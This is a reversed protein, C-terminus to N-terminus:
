CIFASVFLSLVEVRDGTRSHRRRRGPNPTSSPSPSALDPCPKGPHGGSWSSACVGGMSQERVERKVSYKLTIEASSGLSCPWGRKKCSCPVGNNTCVALIKGTEVSPCKPLKWYKAVVTSTVLRTGTDNQMTNSNQYSSIGSPLDSTGLNTCKDAQSINGFPGGCPIRLNCQWLM